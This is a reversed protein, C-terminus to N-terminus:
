RILETSINLCRSRIGAQLRAPSSSCHSFGAVDVYLLEHLAARYDIQMKYCKVTPYCDHKVTTMGLINVSGEAVIESTIILVNTPGFLYLHNLALQFGGVGKGENWRKRALYVQMKFPQNVLASIHQPGILLVKM